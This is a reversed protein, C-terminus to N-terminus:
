YGIIVFYYLMDSCLYIYPTHFFIEAAWFFSLLYDKKGDRMDLLFISIDVFFDFILTFFIRRFIIDLFFM